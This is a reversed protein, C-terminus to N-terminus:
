KHWDSDDASVPQKDNSNDSKGGILQIMSVNISLSAKQEGDKGTYIEVSPTGEIYVQQGKKLFDTLASEQNRWYTCNVWTTKEHIVGRRDKFKENHAVSFGIAVRENHHRVVANAGLNGILITKIM